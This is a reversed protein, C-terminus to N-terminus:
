EGGRDDAGEPEGLAASPVEDTVRANVALRLFRLVIGPAVEIQAEDDDLAVIRGVVGGATIVEDGVELSAVLEQQRRVREKQPRVLLFWMLALFVLPFLVQM